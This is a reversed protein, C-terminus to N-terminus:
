ISTEDVSEQIEDKQDLKNEPNVAVLVIGVLIAVLGIVLLVELLSFGKQNNKIKKFMFNNYSIKNIDKIFTAPCPNSGRNATGSVATRGSSSGAIISVKNSLM